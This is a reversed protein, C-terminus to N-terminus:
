AWPRAAREPWYAEPPEALDLGPVVTVELATLNAQLQAPTVAGSLVVSAWPQALAAAIALADTSTGTAAAAETLPAPPADPGTGPALRGNAMAEKVIITWGAAAAQAAAAGVSTELLNWTVQAVSF